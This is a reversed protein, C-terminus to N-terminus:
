LDALASASNNLQHSQPYAEELEYWHRLAALMNNNSHWLERNINLLSSLQQHDVDEAAGGGLIQSHLQQHLAENGLYLKDLVENVLEAPNDGAFLQVVNKYFSKLDRQYGAAFDALTRSNTHRLDVLNARIDKLAKVSYVADRACDLLIVVARAEKDSLSSHQLRSVYSVLEGEDKKLQVYQQDFDVKQGYSEGRFKIAESSVLLEPNIRLNRMNLAVSHYLMEALRRSAAEIAADPVDVPTDSLRRERGEPVFHGAIWNSYHKLFPVFLILGFLNFLSHFAVLSYLPDQLGVVELLLPLAPLLFVFAALDVVLNFVVHAVALQRKIASGKLSGLATTSTTGLDAGIILAAADPLTLVGSSLATLAIMMTASSSQILATLMVGLLLFVFANYHSLSEVDILEPLGAMAGKMFNLGFLLLGFGFILEGVSRWQRQKDALVQMFCGMGICPLAIGSLNLKFGITAVIWGTFTTGLNAGLIVGIANFLPILGASAFALVLLSVMSSSQLIATLATGSLISTVPRRTAKKLWGKVWQGSLADIGAELRTMGFLFIGLGIILDVVM